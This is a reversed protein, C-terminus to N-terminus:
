RHNSVHSRRAETMAESTHRGALKAVLRALTSRTGPSAARKEMEGYTPTEALAWQSDRSKSSFGQSLHKTIRRYDSCAHRYVRAPLV